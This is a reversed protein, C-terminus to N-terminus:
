AIECRSFEQSLRHELKGSRRTLDALSSASHQHLGHTEESLGADRVLFCLTEERPSSSLKSAPKITLTSMYDKPDDVTIDLELFIDHNV